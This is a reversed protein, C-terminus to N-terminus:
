AAFPNFNTRRDFHDIGEERKLFNVVFYTLPTALVEYTVKFLYGSVILQSMVGLPQGWFIFFIV